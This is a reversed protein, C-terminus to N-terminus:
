TEERDDTFGDRKKMIQSLFALAYSLHASVAFYLYVSRVFHKCYHASIFYSAFLPFLFSPDLFVLFYIFVLFFSGFFSTFVVLCFFFYHRFLYVTVLVFPAIVLCSIFYLVLLEVLASYPLVGSFGLFPEPINFSRVRHL